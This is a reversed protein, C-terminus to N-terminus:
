LKSSGIVFEKYLLLSDTYGRGKVYGCDPLSGVIKFGMDLMLAVFEMETRYVDLILGEYNLIKAIRTLKDVLATAIAQYASKAKLLVYAGMVVSETRCIASPGFLVVGLLEESNVGLVSTERLFKRNWVGNDFFEDLGIMFGRSAADRIVNEVVTCESGSLKRLTFEPSASTLLDTSVAKPVPSYLKSLFSNDVRLPPVSDIM